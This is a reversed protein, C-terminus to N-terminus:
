IGMGHLETKQSDETKRLSDDLAGLGHFTGSKDNIIGNIVKKISGRTVEYWNENAKKADPLLPNKKGKEKLQRLGRSSKKKIRRM